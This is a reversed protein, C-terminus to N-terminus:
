NFKGKFHVSFFNRDGATLGGGHFFVVSPIIIPSGDERIVRENESVDSREPLYIDVEIDIGDIRFYTFTYKQVM